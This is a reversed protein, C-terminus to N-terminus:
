RLNDELNNEKQKKKLQSEQQKKHSMERTKEKIWAITKKLISTKEKEPLQVAVFESAKFYKHVNKEIFAEQTTSNYIQRVQENVFESIVIDLAKDNTLSRQISERANGDRTFSQTIGTKIYRRVAYQASMKGYKKETEIVANELIGRKKGLNCKEVYEESMYKIMDEVTVKEIIGNRAGDDRTFVNVNKEVMYKKLSSKMQKIAYETGYMQQCKKFTKEIAFNIADRKEWEEIQRNSQRKVNSVDISNVDERRLLSYNYRIEDNDPSHMRFFNPDTGFYKLDSSGRNLTISDWTLDIPFSIGRITLVNWAHKEIDNASGSIGRVYDCQIGQRDMMEKFILSYGACIAKGTVLGTLNSCRGGIRKSADHEYTINKGLIMYIYKAKQVEDWEKPIQSEITRMQQIIQKLTRVTYTTRTIYHNDNYKSKGKLGGEIRILEDDRLSNLDFKEELEKTNAVVIM